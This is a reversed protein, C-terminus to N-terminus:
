EYHIGRPNGAMYSSKISFVGVNCSGYEDEPYETGHFSWVMSWKNMNRIPYASLSKWENSRSIHAVPIDFVGPETCDKHCINHM